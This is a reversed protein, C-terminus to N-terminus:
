RQALHKGGGQFVLHQIVHTKGSGGQGLLLLHHCRRQAPEKDKDEWVEDCAHAFRVMFLTQDRTLKQDAPLKQILDRIFSRM